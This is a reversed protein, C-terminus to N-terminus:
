PTAKPVTSDDRELRNAAFPAVLEKLGHKDFDIIIVRVPNGTVRRVTGWAFISHVVRTGPILSEAQEPTM